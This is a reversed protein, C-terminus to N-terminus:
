KRPKKEPKKAAPQKEPEAEAPYAANAAGASPEQAEEPEALQRRYQRPDRAYAALADDQPM